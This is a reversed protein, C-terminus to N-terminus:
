EAAEKLYTAIEDSNPLEPKIHAQTSTEPKSNHCQFCDVKVAVYDHCTRCFHQESKISVPEGDEGKVAHCDVCAKLSHSIDRDGLRMTQDRDHKMLNMHNIRMFLNGEPHPKGTAKPVVPALDGALAPAGLLGVIVLALALFGRM